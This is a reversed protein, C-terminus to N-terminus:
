NQMGKGTFDMQLQNLSALVFSLQLNYFIFRM